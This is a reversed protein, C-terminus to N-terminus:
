NNLFDLFPYHSKTGAVTGNRLKEPPRVNFHPKSAEGGFNPHGSSHDQIVAKTGDPKTYTYQWTMIPKGDKGL